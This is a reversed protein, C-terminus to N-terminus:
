PGSRRASGRRPRNSRAGRPAPPPSSASRRRAGASRSAGRRVRPGRRLSARGHLDGRQLRQAEALEPVQQPHAEVGVLPRDAEALREHARGGHFRIQVLGDRRLEDAAVRQPDLRDVGRQRVVEAPAACADLRAAVRRDVDRQPVEEALDVAPRDGVHQASARAVRDADVVGAGAVLVYAVRTRLRHGVPVDAGGGAGVLVEVREQVAGVLECQRQELLADGPHLDPREVDRGLAGAPEVYTRGLEVGRQLREAPDAARDASRISM